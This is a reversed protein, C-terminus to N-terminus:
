KPKIEDIKKTLEDPPTWGLEIFRGVIEAQDIDFLLRIQGAMMYALEEGSKVLSLDAPTTIINYIEERLKSDM